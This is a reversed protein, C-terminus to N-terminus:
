LSYLVQDEEGGICRKRCAKCFYRWNMNSFRLFCGLLALGLFAIVVAVLIPVASALQLGAIELPKQEPVAWARTTTITTTANDASGGDITDNTPLVELLFYESPLAIGFTLVAFSAVLAEPEAGAALLEGFLLAALDKGIGRRVKDKVSVIETTGMELQYAVKWVGALRRWRLHSFLRRDALVSLILVADVSVEFFIALANQVAVKVQGNTPGIASFTIEGTM